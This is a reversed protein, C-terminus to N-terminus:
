INGTEGGVKGSGLKSEKKLLHGYVNRIPLDVREEIQSTKEDETPEKSRRWETNGLVDPYEKHVRDHRHLPGAKDTSKPSRM